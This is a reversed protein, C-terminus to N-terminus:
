GGVLTSCQVTGTHDFRDMELRLATIVESLPEEAEGAHNGRAIDQCDPPSRAPLTCTVAMM